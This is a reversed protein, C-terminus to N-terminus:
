KYPAGEHTGLYYIEIEIANKYCKWCVVYTPRGRRLHCHYHKEGRRAGKMGKLQSFHPWEPQVPGHEQLDELLDDYSSAVAQPLRALVKGFGRKLTVTYKPNPLGAERAKKISPTM